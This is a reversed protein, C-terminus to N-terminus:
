EGPSAILVKAGSIKFCHLFSKARLNYNLCAMSCGLKAAALWTWVYSPENFAFIVVCDGTKVKAHERLAWAAQNSTIDIDRYTHAQDQYLIFEQNPRVSVQQLFVDLMGPSPCHKVSREVKHVYHILKICFKFDQWLNKPFIRKIAIWLPIIWFLMVQIIPM